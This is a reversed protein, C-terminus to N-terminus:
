ASSLEQCSFHNSFLICSIVLCVLAAQRASQEKSLLSYYFEFPHQKSRNGTKYKRTVIVKRNHSILSLEIGADRPERAGALVSAGSGQKWHSDCLSM